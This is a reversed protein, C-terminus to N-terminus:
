HFSPGFETCSLLSDRALVPCFTSSGDACELDKSTGAPSSGAVCTRVSLVTTAIDHGAKGLARRCNQM